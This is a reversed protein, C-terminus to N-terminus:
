RPPATRAPTPFNLAKCREIDCATPLTARYEPLAKWPLGDRTRCEGPRGKPDGPDREMTYYSMVDACRRSHAMLGYFHGLEHALAMQLTQVAPHRPNRQALLQFMAPSLWLRRRGVDALAFNGRTAQADWAITIAGAELAAAEAGLVEAAIGCAGWAQAARQVTGLVLAESFGPWAGAHRYSLVLRSVAVPRDVGDGWTAIEGPRCSAMEAERQQRVAAVDLAAASGALALLTAALATRRATSATPGLM